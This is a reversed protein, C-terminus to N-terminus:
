NRHAALAEHVSRDLPGADRITDNGYTALAADFLAAAFTLASSYRDPPNPLLARDLVDAIRPPIGGGVDAVSVVDGSLRQRLLDGVRDVDTYPLRGALLECLVLGLAHVDTAPTTPEDRLQEPARYRLNDVSMARGARADLTAATLTRTTGGVRVTGHEDLTIDGPRLDGHMLNADHLAAIAVSTAIAVATRWQPTPLALAASPAESGDLIPRLSRGTTASTKTATQQDLDEIALLHPHHLNRLHRLVSLMEHSPTTTAPVGTPHVLTPRSSPPADASAPQVVLSVAAKGASSVPRLSTSRLSTSRLGTAHMTSRRGAAEVPGAGAGGAELVNAATAWLAAKVQFPRLEPHKSRLQAALGAIHPAAYSNGTSRNTTGGIWAVEVDIGRALFETPPVPNAHFRRPDTTTNCAVSAVSAFLSPYSARAVNNAATVIFSNSFYGQDCVEHFALAWDKKTTGLSLNIVDFGQEVAWLLGAHFAAAKGSLNPGLVRVSTIRADPALSHIIGACATGHGFVDTHPGEEVVVTGDDAVSFAVGQENDVCGELLPHDAEIGSDVIAVRVGAGTAGEFAWAPSLDVDATAGMRLMVSDKAWAPRRDSM